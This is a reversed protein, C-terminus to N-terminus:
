RAAKKLASKAFAVKRAPTKLAASSAGVTISKASFGGKEMATLVPILDLSKGAKAQITVSDTGIKIADMNLDEVKSTKLAADLGSKCNGCCLHAVGLTVPHSGVDLKNAPFGGKRLSDLVPVLDTENEKLTVTVNKGDIAVASSVKELAKTASTKCGGCCMHGVGITAKTEAFAGTTGLTLSALAFASLIGLKRTNM